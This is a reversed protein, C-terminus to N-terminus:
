HQPGQDPDAPPMPMGQDDVQESASRMEDESPDQDQDDGDFMGTVKDKMEDAKDKAKDFFSQGESM